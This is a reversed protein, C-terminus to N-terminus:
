KAARRRRALLMVAGTVAVGATAPEPASVPTLTGNFTLDDIRFTGASGAVSTGNTGFGASTGSGTLDFTVTGSLDTLGVPVSFQAISTPNTVSGVTAGDIIVNGTAPGTASVQDFFSITDLNLTFAPDVTLTVLFGNGTTTIVAPSGSSSFFSNLSGAPTGSTTTPSTPFTFATSNISSVSSGTVGTITSTAALTSGSFSYLAIVDANASHAALSTLAATAVTLVAMRIKAKRDLRSTTM